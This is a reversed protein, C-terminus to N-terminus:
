FERLLPWHNHWDDVVSGANQTETWMKQIITNDFWRGHYEWGKPPVGIVCNGISFRKRSNIRLTPDVLIGTETVCWGHHIPIGLGASVFGEFYVFGDNFLAMRQANYFCEKSRPSYAKVQQWIERREDRSVKTTTITDGKMAFYTYLSSFAYGDKAPMISGMAKLSEKLTM